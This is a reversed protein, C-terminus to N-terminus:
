GGGIGRALIDWTVELDIWFILKLWAFVHKETAMSVPYLIYLKSGRASSVWPDKSSNPETLNTCQM